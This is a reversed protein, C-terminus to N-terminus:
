SNSDTDDTDFKGEKIMRNVRRVNWLALYQRAFELIAAFAYCLIGLLVDRGIFITFSGLVVEGCISARFLTDSVRYKNKEKM